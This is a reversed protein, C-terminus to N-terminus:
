ASLEIKAEQLMEYLSDVIDQVTKAERLKEDTIKQDYQDELQLIMEIADISDMDLDEVLLAEPKILDKDLEFSETLLGEIKQYLEEKTMTIKANM